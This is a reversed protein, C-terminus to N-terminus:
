RSTIRGLMMRRGDLRPRYLNAVVIGAKTNTSPNVRVSLADTALDNAAVPAELRKHQLGERILTLVGCFNRGVPAAGRRDV